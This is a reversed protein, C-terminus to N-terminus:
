DDDITEREEIKAKPAYMTQPQGLVPSPPLERRPTRRFLWRLLGDAAEDATVAVSRANDVVSAAMGVGQQGVIDQVYDQLDPNSAIEDMIEAILEGIAGTALARSQHEEMEGEQIIEAAQARWHLLRSELADRLPRPLRRGAWETSSSTARGANGISWQFVRCLDRRLRKQGRQFLGLGLYWAQRRLTKGPAPVGARWLDPDQDLKTQMKQLRLVAEDVGIALLGILFRLGLDLNDDDPDQDQEWQFQYDIHDPLAEREIPDQDSM